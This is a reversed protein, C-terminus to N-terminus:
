RWTHQLHGGLAPPYLNAGRLVSVFEPSRTALWDDRIHDYENIWHQITRQTGHQDGWRALEPILISRHNRCIDAYRDLCKQPTMAGDNFLARHARDGFRVRFERSRRLDGYPEAVGSTSGTKDSSSNLFMSWEADWCFFHM